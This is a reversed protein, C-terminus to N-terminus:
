SVPFLASSKAPAKPLVASSYEYSKRAEWQDIYAFGGALRREGEDQWTSQAVLMM